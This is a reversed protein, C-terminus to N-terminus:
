RGGGGGGLNMQGTVHYLWADTSETSCLFIVCSELNILGLCLCGIDGAVDPHKERLGCFFSADQKKERAFTVYCRLLIKM